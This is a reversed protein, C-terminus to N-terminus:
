PEHYCSALFWVWGMVRVGDLGVPQNLNADSKEHALSKKVRKASKSMCRGIFREILARWSSDANNMRGVNNFYGFELNKQLFFFVIYDV